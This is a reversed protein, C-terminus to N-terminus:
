TAYFIWTADQVQASNGQRWGSLAQALPDFKSSLVPPRM